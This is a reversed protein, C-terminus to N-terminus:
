YRKGCVRTCGRLPLHTVTTVVYSSLDWEFLEGRSPITQFEIGEALTVLGYVDEVVLDIKVAGGM